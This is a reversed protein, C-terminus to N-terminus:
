NTPEELRVEALWATLERAGARIALIRRKVEGRNPSAVSTADDLASLMTTTDHEIRELGMLLTATTSPM